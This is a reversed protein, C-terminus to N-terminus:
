PRSGNAVAFGQDDSFIARERKLMTRVHDLSASDLDPNSRLLETLQNDQNPLIVLVFDAALMAFLASAISDAIRRLDYNGLAKPFTLLAIVDRMCRRLEDPDSLPDTWPM